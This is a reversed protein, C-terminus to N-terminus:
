LFKNESTGMEVTFSAIAYSPLSFARYQAYKEEPTFSVLVMYPHCAHHPSLGKM